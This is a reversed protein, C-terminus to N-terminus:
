RSKRKRSCTSAEIQWQQPGVHVWCLVRQVMLSCFPPRPPKARVCRLCGLCMMGVMVTDSPEACRPVQSRQPASRVTHVSHRSGAEERRFAFLGCLWGGAQM